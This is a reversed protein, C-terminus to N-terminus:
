MRRGIVEVAIALKHLKTSWQKFLERKGLEPSDMGLQLTGSSLSKLKSATSEIQQKLEEKDM